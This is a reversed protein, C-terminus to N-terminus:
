AHAAYKRDQMRVRRDLGPYQLRRKGGQAM